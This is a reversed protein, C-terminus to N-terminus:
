KRIGIRIGIKFIWVFCFPFHILHCFDVWIKLLSAHQFDTIMKIVVKCFYCELARMVVLCFSHRVMKIELSQVLSIDTHFLLFLLTNIKVRKFVITQQCCKHFRPISINAAMKIKHIFGIMAKWACLHNRIPLFWKTFGNLLVLVTAKLKLM